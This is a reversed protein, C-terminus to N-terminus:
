RRGRAAHRPGGPRRRRVAPDASGFALAAVALDEALAAPLDPWGRDAAFARWRAGAVSGVLVGVASVLATALVPMRERRGYATGAALGAAVRAALAAPELRSRTGPLKDAVAEGAAALVAGGRGWPGALRALWRDPTSAPTTLALATMGASSRGGTAVGLTAARLVSGM